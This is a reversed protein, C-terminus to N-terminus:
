RETDMLSGGDAATSSTGSESDSRASGTSHPILERLNMESYGSDEDQPGEAELIADAVRSRKLQLSDYM